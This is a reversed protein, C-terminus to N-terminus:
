QRSVGPLEIRALLHPPADLYAHRFLLRDVFDAQPASGLRRQLAKRGQWFDHSSKKPM